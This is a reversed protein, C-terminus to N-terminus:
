AATLLSRLTCRNGHVDDDVAPSGDGRQDGEQFFLEGHFSAHSSGIAFSFARWLVMWRDSPHSPTSHPKEPQSRHRSSDCAQRLATRNEFTLSFRVGNATATQRICTPQPPSKRNWVSKQTVGPNSHIKTKQYWNKMFRNFVTKHSRLRATLPLAAGFRLGYMERRWRRGARFACSLVTNLSDAKTLM